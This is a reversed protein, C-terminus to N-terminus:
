DVYLSLYRSNLLEKFLVVPCFLSPLIQVVRLLWIMAAVTPAVGCWGAGRTRACLSSSMGGRSPSSQFYRFYFEFLIMIWSNHTYLSMYVTIM